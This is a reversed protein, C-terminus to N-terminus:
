VLVIYIFIICAQTEYFAFWQSSSSSMISMTIKRKLNALNGGLDRGQGSVASCPTLDVGSLDGLPSFTAQRTLDLRVPCM